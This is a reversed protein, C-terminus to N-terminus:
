VTEMQSYTRSYPTHLFRVQKVELKGVSVFYIFVVRFVDLMVMSVAEMFDEHRQVSLHFIEYFSSDEWQSGPIEYQDAGAIGMGFGFETMRRQFAEYNKQIMLEKHAILARFVFFDEVGAAIGLMFDACVDTLFGTKQM